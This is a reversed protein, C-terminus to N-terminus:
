FSVSLKWFPTKYIWKTVFQSCLRVAVFIIKFCDDTKLWRFECASVNNLNFQVVTQTLVFMVDLFLLLFVM